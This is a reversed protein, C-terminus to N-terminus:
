SHDTGYLSWTTPLAPGVDPLKDAAYVVKFIGDFVTVKPNIGNASLEAELGLDTREPQGPAQSPRLLVDLDSERLMLARALMRQEFPSLTVGHQAKHRIVDLGFEMQYLEKLADQAADASRSSCATGFCLSM